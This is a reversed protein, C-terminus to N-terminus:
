TLNEGAGDFVCASTQALVDLADLLRDTEFSCLVAVFYAGSGCGVL